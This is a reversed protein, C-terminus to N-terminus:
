LHFCLLNWANLFWVFALVAIAVLSYHIRAFLGWHGRLWARVALALILGALFPITLALGLLVRLVSRVVDAPWHGSLISLFGILLALALASTGFAVSRPFGPKQRTWIIGGVFALFVSMFIALCSFLVGQSFRATEHWAIKEFAYHPTSNIFLHTINGNPDEEFILKEPGNIEQFVLPAVEVYEGSFPGRPLDFDISLTGEPNASVHGFGMGNLHAIRGIKTYIFRTTRYQGTFHTVREAYGAM